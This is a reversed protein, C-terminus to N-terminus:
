RAPTARLAPRAPRPWSADHPRTARLAPRAPRPWSTPQGVHTMSRDDTSLVTRHGVQVTREAAARQIPCPERSGGRRWV